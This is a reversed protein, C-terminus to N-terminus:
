PANADIRGTAAPEHEHSMQACVASAELLEESTGTVAALGEELVTIKLPKAPTKTPVTKVGLADTVTHM